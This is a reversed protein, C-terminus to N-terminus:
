FTIWNESILIVELMTDMDAYNRASSYLYDEAKEVIGDKVPNSHIYNLKQDIFKNTILEEGHYGDQWVKYRQERKLHSCAKAFKELIWERRSEPENRINDILKKATFKKLDRIIDSLVFGNKAQCILHLHSPMIVYAYIELGKEKQCYVLSDVVTRKHNERTFLDIWDVTTVTIFYPSENNFIRYKTSM